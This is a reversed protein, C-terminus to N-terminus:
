RVQAFYAGLAAAQEPTYGKAIIRMITGPRAGSAFETMAGQLSEQTKGALQPIAGQGKGNLGHCSMCSEAFTAAQTSAQLSQAGAHTPLCLVLAFGAACPWGTRARFQRTM